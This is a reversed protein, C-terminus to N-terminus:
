PRTITDATRVSRAGARSTLLSYDIGVGLGVLSVLFLVIFSVNAFTTVGLVVLLTTLISTSAVLLPVFALLSGFVFALVALAGAAGIMTEVLVGPGRSTGGNALQQLGTLGVQTGRPLTAILSNVVAPPINPGGFMNQTPTFLLAFTSRGENIILGPDRTAGYDVIRARPDAARARDFASAIETQHRAVAQDAPLTVLLVSPDSDGNGYLHKLKNATEYRSQGPLSFDVSLRKSLHSAGYIGAPLLLV